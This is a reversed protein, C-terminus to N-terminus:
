FQKPEGAGGALRDLLDNGNPMERDTPPAAANQKLWQVWIADAIQKGWFNWGIMGTKSLSGPHDGPPVVRPPSSPAVQVTKSTKLPNDAMWGWSSLISPVIRM